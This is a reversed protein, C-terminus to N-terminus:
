VNEEEKFYDEEKFGRMRLCRVLNKLEDINKLEYCSFGAKLKRRNTTHYLIAELDTSFTKNSCDITCHCQEKYSRVYFTLKTM